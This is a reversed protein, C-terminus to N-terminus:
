LRRLRVAVYHPYGTSQSAQLEILERVSFRADLFAQLYMELPRHFHSTMLGTEESLSAGVDVQVCHESGYDYWPADEYGVCKAWFCPHPLTVAVDGGVRVLRQLSTLFGQLHPTRALSLNAVAATFTRSPLFADLPSAVFRLGRRAFYAKALRISEHSADVGVVRHAKADILAAATAGIGCGADLVRRMDSGRLLHHIAPILVDHLDLDRQSKVQNVRAPAAQSWEHAVQELSRRKLRM